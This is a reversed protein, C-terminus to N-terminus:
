RSASITPPSIENADGKRKVTATPVHTEDCAGGGLDTRAAKGMRSRTQSPVLQRIRELAKSVRAQSLTWYTSQQDTNGKAVGKAGGVRSRGGGCIDGCHAKRAKNAPKIAVIVLDSKEHGHMMPKPEEGERRPGGYERLQLAVALGSIEWTGIRDRQVHHPRQGRCPSLVECLPAACTAKSRTFVRPGQSM